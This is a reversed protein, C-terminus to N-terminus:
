LQLVQLALYTAPLSSRTLEPAFRSASLSGRSVTPAHGLTHAALSSLHSAEEINSVLRPRVAIFTCDQGSCEHSHHGERGIGVPPADCEKQPKATNPSHRHHECGEAGATELEYSGMECAHSHHLCCGLGLHVLLLVTTLQPLPSRM